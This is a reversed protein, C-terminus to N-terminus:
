RTLFFLGLGLAFLISALILVVVVPIAVAVVAKGRDLGYVKEAVLVSVVLIWIGALWSLLVPGVGPIILAWFIFSACGVPVFFQKFEGKGGLFSTACFHVIGTFIFMQILMLIASPVFFAPRLAGFALCAGGIAVIGIAPGFGKEDAALKEIAEVKLKVVEWGMKVYDFFSMPARRERFVAAVCVRGRASVAVVANDIRVETYRPVVISVGAPDRL